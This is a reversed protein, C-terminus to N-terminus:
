VSPLRARQLHGNYLHETAALMRELTFVQEVRRRGAEGYRRARDPDALLALLGASMALSDGAQVLQGTEGPVVVEPVGGVNTALVPKRAAMAELLVLGFPEARSSLVFVELARMLAFLDARAGLLRVQGGLGLRDILAELQPRRSGEGAIVLRANPMEALVRPMAAILEDFGKEPELRGAAGILKGDAPVLDARISAVRAEDATRDLAAVDVGNHITVLPTGPWLGVSRIFRAIHESVAVVAYNPASMLTHGLRVLPQRFLAHDSHKTSIIVPVRCLAAACNGYFEALPLHTHVVDPKVERVLRVFAALSVPNLEGRFHLRHVAVDAARLEAALEGSGGWYAVAVEWGRAAFGRGLALVHSEAGRRDIGTAILLLKPRRV